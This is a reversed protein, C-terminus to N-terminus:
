AASQGRTRRPPKCAPSKDWHAITRLEGRKVPPENDRLYRVKTGRVALQGGGIRAPEVPLLRGRATLALRVRQHCTVCFAVTRM